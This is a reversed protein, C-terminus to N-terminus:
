APWNYCNKAFEVDAAIAAKLEELNAFKKVDRIKELLEIKVLSGEKVDDSFDLLHAECLKKEDVTPRGGVNVAAKYKKGAVEVFGVFVGSEAGYYPINITPFGLTKGIGSGKIIKGSIIISM